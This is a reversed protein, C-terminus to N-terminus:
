AEKGAGRASAPSYELPSINDPWVLTVASTWRWSSPPGLREPDFYTRGPVAPAVTISDVMLRLIARKTDLDLGGWLKRLDGTPLTPIAHESIVAEASSVRETLVARAAEWEARTLNGAAYIAAMEAMRDQAAMLEAVTSASSDDPQAELAERMVPSDLADLIQRVVEADTEATLIAVGSCGGLTRPPCVYRRKADSPFRGHTRTRGVLARGCRGCYLFGVLLNVRANSRAKRRGPATLIARLREWTNRELIPPWLKPDGEKYTIQGKRAARLVPDPDTHRLRLGTIFGGTLMRGLAGQRWPTGAPSVVGRSLWDAVISRLSAGALLRDAAEHILAAEDPVVAYAPPKTPLGRTDTVRRYGFPRHGGGPPEGKEILEDVKRRIRESKHESEHRAVAGVIRATMRGSPTSLDLEGATVTQIAVGHREVMDIFGELERPSRHLRDPHWAVVGQVAGAEIASCLERYAPRPKNSYASADDDVYTAAVQWGLRQALAECDQRQREVGLGEGSPDRSIRTYIAANTMSCTYM